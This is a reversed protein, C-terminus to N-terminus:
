AADTAQHTKGIYYILQEESLKLPDYGEAVRRYWDATLRLTEVPSLIPKWGLKQRSKSSDLRLLETEHPQPGEDLTWATERGWAEAFRRMMWEVTQADGDQPGFNWAEAFDHGDYLKEALNLYGSIPELVHQWPRIAKPSRINPSRGAMFARVIDPVLRDASWDGGGIVNGARATALGMGKDEDFYSARFSAALLEACAKSASYPDHGGLRDNERYPWPWERNEYCKDTAVLLAARVGGANRAAELVNATGMVNTEFTLLPELYSLRVLPQAALHFIIEPKAKQMAKLLAAYDRVDGPTHPVDPQFGCFNSFPAGEPLSFGWIDAGLKKLWLCLWAGKFGSHGTIFVRKNTWFRM